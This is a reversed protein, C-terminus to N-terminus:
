CWANMSSNLLRSVSTSLTIFIKEVLDLEDVDLVIRWEVVVRLLRGSERAEDPLNEPEREVVGVERVESAM